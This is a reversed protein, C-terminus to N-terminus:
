GSKASGPSISSRPVDVAVACTCSIATASESITTHPNSLYMGCASQLLSCAFNRVSSFDAFATVAVSIPAIARDNPANLLPEIQICFNLASSTHNINPAAVRAHGAESERIAAPQM